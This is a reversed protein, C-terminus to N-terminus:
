IASSHDNLIKFALASFPESDGANRTM